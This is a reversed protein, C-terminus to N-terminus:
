DENNDLLDNLDIGLKEGLIKLASEYKKCKEELKKNTEQLGKLTLVGIRDYEVWKTKEKDEREHVIKEFVGGFELLQNASVGFTDKEREGEKRWIYEFVKLNM